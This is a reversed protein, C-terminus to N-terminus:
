LFEVEALRESPMYAPDIVDVDFSIYLYEPGDKAEKLVDEM